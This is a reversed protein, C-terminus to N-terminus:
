VNSILNMEYIEYHPDQLDHKVRLKLNGNNSGSLM